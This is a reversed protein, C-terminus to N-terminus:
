DREAPATEGDLERSSGVPDRELGELSELMRQRARLAAGAHADPGSAEPVATFAMLLLVAIAPYVTWRPLKM